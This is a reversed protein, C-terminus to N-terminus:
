ELTSGDLILVNPIDIGSDFGYHFVFAGLGFINNYKESQKKLSKMIFPTDTLVYNKADLWRITYNIENLELIVPKDFLIDPTVAYDKDIKIDTETRFKIGLSRLHNELQHEFDVSKRHIEINSSTICNTIEKIVDLDEVVLKKFEPMQSIIKIVSGIPLRTSKLWYKIKKPHNTPDSALQVTLTLFRNKIQDVCSYIKKSSDIEKQIRITNRLSVAEYSLINNENAYNNLEDKEKGCLPMLGRMNSKIFKMHKVITQHDYIKYNTWIIKQTTM